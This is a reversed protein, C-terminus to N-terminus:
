GSILAQKLTENDSTELGISYQVGTEKALRDVIVRASAGPQRSIFKESFLQKLSIRPSLSLPHKSSAAIVYPRRAFPKSVVNLHTPPLTGAIIVDANGEALLQVIAPTKDVMYRVTVKPYKAGFANVLSGGFYNVTNFAAVKLIGADMNKLASFTEDAKDLTREIEGTYELLKIGAESLRISRGFRDFLVLSISDELQQIQSSVAPQTINLCGAARTFSLERAVASFIRLQKLTINKIM